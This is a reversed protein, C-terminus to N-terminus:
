LFDNAEVLRFGPVERVCQRLLHAHGAGYFVLVRDGPRAAQVLRACIELNRRTWAALLNAGPQEDGSGYRLLDGYWAADAAISEPRNMMRLTEGITGEAQLQTIAQVRKETAAGAADLRAKMGHGAAWAAVADYPFDGDADIGDVRDLKATRAARFGLQVVENRSPELTGALFKAYREDVVAKPWEVAVRTPRFKALAADVGELQAQRAPKLVDDSTVNHQDRGPNGFHYTGVVLVEIPADAAQSPLLSVAALALAVLFSRM